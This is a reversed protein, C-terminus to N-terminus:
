PADLGQRGAPGALETPRGRTAPRVLAAAGGVARRTGGAWRIGVAQLLRVPGVGDGRGWWGPSGGRWNNERWGKQVSEAIYLTNYPKCM